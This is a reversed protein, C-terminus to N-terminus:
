LCGVQKLCRPNVIPITRQKILKKTGALAGADLKALYKAPDKNFDDICGKCCFRVERGEHQIVAPEGMEDLKQSAYSQVSVLQQFRTGSRVLSKDVLAQVLDTAWTSGTEM